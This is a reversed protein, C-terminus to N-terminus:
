EAMVNTSRVEVLGNPRRSAARFATQLTFLFTGIELAVVSSRTIELATQCGRKLRM